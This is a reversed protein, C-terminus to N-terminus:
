VLETHGWLVALVTAGNETTVSHTCGNPRYSMNGTGVVGSEDANSGEIIYILEDGVHRHLPLKAGPGFRTLIVRREAAPDEWINKQQVGQRTEVFAMESLMFIRSPPAGGRETAPEIGGTLIAIATAGNPSSVTHTCGHPRYGMNGAAVTGFEDAIAGEVVYLLEDGVHQHMPLEAGPDIQVMLAQRKTDNHSWLSKMRVGPQMEQWAFESVPIMQSRIMEQTVAM